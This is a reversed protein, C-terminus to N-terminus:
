CIQQKKLAALNSLFDRLTAEHELKCISLFIFLSVAVIVVVAVVVVESCKVVVVIVLLVVGVSCELVSWEM